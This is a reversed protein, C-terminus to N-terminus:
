KKKSSKTAKANLENLEKVLKDPDVGHASAGMEITEMMAMPCGGCFLGKQALAEGAIPYEEMLEYITMDKKIKNM